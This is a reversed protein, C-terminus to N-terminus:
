RHEPRQLRPSPKGNDGAGITVEVWPFMDRAVLQPERQLRADCDLQQWM